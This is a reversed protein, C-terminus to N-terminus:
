HYMVRGRPFPQFNRLCVRSHTTVSVSSSVDSQRPNLFRSASEKLLEHVRQWEEQTVKFNTSNPARIVLLNKLIPGKLLVSLHFVNQWQLIDELCVLANDSSVGFKLWM